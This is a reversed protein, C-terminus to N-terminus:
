FTNTNEFGSIKERKRREADNPDYQWCKEFLDEPCGDQEVDRLLKKTAEIQRELEKERSSM